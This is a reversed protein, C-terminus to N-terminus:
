FQRVEEERPASNRPLRTKCLPCTFAFRHRLTGNRPALEVIRPTNVGSKRLLLSSDSGVAALQGRILDAALDNGSQGVPVANIGQSSLLTLVNGCTGGISHTVFGGPAVILDLAILGSGLVSPSDSKAPDM